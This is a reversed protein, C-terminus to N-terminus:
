AAAIEAMRAAFKAGVADREALEADTLFQRGDARCRAHIAERASREEAEASQRLRSRRCADAHEDPSMGLLHPAATATANISACAADIDEPTAHRAFFSLASALADDTMAAPPTRSLRALQRDHVARKLPRLQARTTM